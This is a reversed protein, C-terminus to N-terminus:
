ILIIHVLLSLCVFYVFWYFLLDIIVHFAHFGTTMFFTSGYVGDSLLFPLTKYELFQLSSFLIALFLTFILGSFVHSKEGELMAHHAYTVTYGSLALVFSNFLPIGYPSIPSIGLPPWVSGISVDPSLSSHFFAWFFGFFFMVESVIFLAVGIKLSTQVAPTHNGLFSAERIVDRWWLTLIGIVYSIGLFLTLGGFKFSHMYLVGGVTILLAGFAAFLPWPSPTVIHFPHKPIERNMISFVYALWSGMSYIFKGLSKEFFEGDRWKKFFESDLLFIQDGANQALTEKFPISTYYFLYWAL